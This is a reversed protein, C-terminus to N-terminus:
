LSLLSGTLCPFFIKLVLHGMWLIALGSSTSHCHYSSFCSVHSSKVNGNLVVCTQYQTARTEFKAITLLTCSLSRDYYLDTTHQNLSTTRCIHSLHQGKQSSFLGRPPAKFFYFRQFFVVM